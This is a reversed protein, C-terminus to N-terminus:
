PATPPRRWSTQVTKNAEGATFTKKQGVYGYRTVVATYSSGSDLTYIGKDGPLIRDGTVDSTLFVTPM